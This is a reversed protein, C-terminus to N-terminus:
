SINAGYIKDITEKKIDIKNKHMLLQHIIRKENMKIISKSYRTKSYYTKLKDSKALEIYGGVIESINTSLFKSKGCACVGDDSLCEKGCTACYMIGSKKSFESSTHHDCHGDNEITELKAM